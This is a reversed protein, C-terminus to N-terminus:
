ADYLGGWGVTHVGSSLSDDLSLKEDIAARDGGLSYACAGKALNPISLANACDTSSGGAALNLAEGYTWDNPADGFDHIHSAKFGVGYSLSGRDGIAHRKQVAAFLDDQTENDDSNPPQGGLLDIPLQYTQYAHSLTVNVYDGKVPVTYRVFQNADSSDNHPSDVDPPDLGRQTVSQRFATVVSGMGLAGQYGLSSDLSGAS